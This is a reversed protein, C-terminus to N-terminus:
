EFTTKNKEEILFLFNNHITFAIKYFSNKRLIEKVLDVDIEEFFMGNDNNKAKLVTNLRINFSLTKTKNGYSYIFDVDDSEGGRISYSILKVDSFYNKNAAIDKKIKRIELFYSLYFFIFFFSFFLLTFLISILLPELISSEKKYNKYFFTCFLLIGWILSGLRHAKQTDFIEKQLIEKEEFSMLRSDFDYNKM